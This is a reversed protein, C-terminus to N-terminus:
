LPHFIWLVYCGLRHRLFDQTGLDLAELALIIQSHVITSGQDVNDIAANAKFKVM